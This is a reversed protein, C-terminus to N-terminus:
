GLWRVETWRRPGSSRGPRPRPATRPSLGPAPQWFIMLRLPAAAAEGRRWPDEEEDLFRPVDGRARPTTFAPRATSSQRRGAVFIPRDTNAARTPPTDARGRRAEGGIAADYIARRRPDHLVEYAGAVEAFRRAADIGACVDPHYRRALRRYAARIEAGTAHPELGLIEYYTPPRSSM